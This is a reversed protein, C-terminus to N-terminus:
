ANVFLRQLFWATSTIGMLYSLHKKKLLKIQRFVLIRSCILLVLYAAFLVSLQGLEVGINFALLGQLIQDEPLGIQDLAGAFGFGHILGFIFAVIWPKQKTLSNPDNVLIERALLIISLAIVAEVAQSNLSVLNFTNAALTLSHSITFTTIAIVLVKIKTILLLFCVVFMLHDIGGLIHKFGLALYALFSNRSETKTMKIQKQPTDPTLITTSRQGGLNSIVLLADTRTNKLGQLKMSWTEKFKDCQLRGVKRMLNNLEFSEWIVQQECADIHLILQNNAKTILKSQTISAQWFSSKPNSTDLEDIQVLIPKLEDANTSCNTLVCIFFLSIGSLLKTKEWFRNLERKLKFM